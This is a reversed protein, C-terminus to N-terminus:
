MLNKVHGIEVLEESNHMAFYLELNCGTIEQLEIVSLIVVLCVSGFLHSGFLYSKM